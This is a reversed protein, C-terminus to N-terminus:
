SSRSSTQAVSKTPMRAVSHEFSPQQVCVGRECPRRFPHTSPIWSKKEIWEDDNKGDGERGHATRWCEKTSTASEGQSASQVEM